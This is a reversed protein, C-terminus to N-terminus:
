QGAEYVSARTLLQDPQQSEWNALIPRLSSADRLTAKTTDRSNTPQLDYEHYRPFWVLTATRRTVNNAVALSGGNSHPTNNDPDRPSAWGISRSTSLSEDLKARRRYWSLKEPSEQVM